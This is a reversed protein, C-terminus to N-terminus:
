MCIYVDAKPQVASCQAPLPPWGSAALSNSALPALIPALFIFPLVGTVFILWIMCVFILWTTICIQTRDYMCTYTVDYMFIHTMDCTCIHTMDCTCIHTMDCTCIHTRDYMCVHILWMMCLCMFYQRWFYSKCHLQAVIALENHCAWHTLQSM